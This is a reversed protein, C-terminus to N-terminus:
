AQEDLDYKESNQNRKEFGPEAELEWAEHIANNREGAGTRHNGPMMEM